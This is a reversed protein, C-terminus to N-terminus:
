WLCQLQAEKNQKTLYICLDEIRVPSIALGYQNIESKVVPTLPEFIIAFSQVTTNQREIVNKNYIFSDIQTAGGDIRYASHRIEDINGYLVKEGKEILLVDSLVGELENFLHSSILFTRPHETYDRLLIDYAARRVTIDMGLIPEDFMTLKCRCSLAALFNFISGMGQSLNKYKMRPSLDFYKILKNAFELDFNTFLTNYNRLISNLNLDRQYGFNHCTYILNQLVMINDMPNEDFVTVSGSTADLQGSLIKMLTTKGSGNRGILGTISNQPINLSLKNLATKKNFQKVLNNTQIVTENMKVEMETYFLERKCM